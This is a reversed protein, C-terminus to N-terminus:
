RIPKVLLPKPLPTPNSKTGIMTSAIPWVGRPDSPASPNISGRSIRPSTMAIQCYRLSNEGPMTFCRSGADTEPTNTPPSSSVPKVLLLRDHGREDPQLDAEFAHQQHRNGPPPHDPAHLM